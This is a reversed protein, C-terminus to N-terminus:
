FGQSGQAMDPDGGGGRKGLLSYWCELICILANAKLVCFTTCNVQEICTKLWPIAGQFGSGPWDTGSGIESPSLLPSIPLLGPWRIGGWLDSSLSLGEPGSINWLSVQGGSGWERPSLAWWLRAEVEAGLIMELKRPLQIHVSGVSSGLPCWSRENGACDESVWEPGKGTTKEDQFAGRDKRLQGGFSTSAGEKFDGYCIKQVWCWKLSSLGCVLTSSSLPGLPSFRMGARFSSM